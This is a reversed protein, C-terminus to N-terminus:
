LHYYKLKGKRQESTLMVKHVINRFINLRTLMGRRLIKMTSPIYIANAKHNYIAATHAPIFVYSIFIINRCIKGLLECNFSLM